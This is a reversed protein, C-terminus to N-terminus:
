SAGLDGGLDAARLGPAAESVGRQAAGSAAQVECLELRRGLSDRQLGPLGFM